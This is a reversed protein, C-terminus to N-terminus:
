EDTDSGNTDEEEPPAAEDGDSSTGDSSASDSATDTPEDREAEECAAGNDTPHDIPEHAEEQAVVVDQNHSVKSPALPEEVVSESQSFEIGRPSEPVHDAVVDGDGDADCTGAGAETNTADGVDYPADDDVDVDKNDSSDVIADTAVAEDVNDVVVHDGNDDDDGGDDDDDDDDDDDSGDDDDDDLPVIRAGGSPVGIGNDSARLVLFVPASVTPRAYWARVGNDDQYRDDPDDDDNEDGDDNDLRGASEGEKDDDGGGDDDDRNEDEDDEDSEDGRGMFFRSEDPLSWPDDVAIAASYGANHRSLAPVINIGRRDRADGSEAVNDTGDKIGGDDDDRYSRDAHDIGVAGFDDSDRGDGRNIFDDGDEDDSHDGHDVRDGNDDDDGADSPGGDYAGGDRRDFHYNNADRDSVPRSDPVPSGSPTARQSQYPTAARHQQQRHVDIPMGREDNEAACAGPRPSVTKEFPADCSQLPDASVVANPSAMPTAQAQPRPVVGPDISSPSGTREVVVCVDGECRINPRSSRFTATAVPDNPTPYIGGGGDHATAPAQGREPLIQRHFPAGTTSTVSADLPPPPGQMHGPSRPPSILTPAISPQQQGGYVQVHPQHQQTHHGQVQLPPPPRQQDLRPERPQFPAAGYPHDYQQYSPHGQQFPQQQGQRQQQQHQNRQGLPGGGHPPPQAGNDHAHDHAHDFRRQQQQQSPPAIGAQVPAAVTAAAVRARIADAAVAVSRNIYPACATTVQAPNAEVWQGFATHLDDPTVQHRVEGLTRKVTREVNSLRRVLYIVVMVLVVALLLVLAM